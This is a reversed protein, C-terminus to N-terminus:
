NSKTNTPIVGDLMACIIFALAWGYSGNSAAIGAVGVMGIAALNLILLKWNM